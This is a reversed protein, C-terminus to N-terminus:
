SVFKDFTLYIQLSCNLSWHSWLKTTPWKVNSVVFGQTRIHDDGGGYISGGNGETVIQILMFPM